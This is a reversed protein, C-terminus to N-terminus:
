EDPDPDPDPDQNPKQFTPIRELDIQSAVQFSEKPERRPNTAM